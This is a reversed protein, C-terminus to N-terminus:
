GVEGTHRHYTTATQRCIYVSCTFCKLKHLRTDHKTTYMSSQQGGTIKVDGRDDDSVLNVIESITHLRRKKPPQVPPPSFLDFRIDIDSLELREVDVEDEYLEPRETFVSLVQKREAEQRRVASYNTSM